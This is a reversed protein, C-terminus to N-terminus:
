IKKLCVMEELEYSDLLFRSLLALLHWLWVLSALQLSFSLFKRM